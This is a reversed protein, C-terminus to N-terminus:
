DRPSPSTYLLCIVFLILYVLEKQLGFPPEALMEVLGNVSINKGKNDKLKDLIINAYKSNRTDLYNNDDLLNLSSM